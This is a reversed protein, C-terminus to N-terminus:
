ICISVMIVVLYVTVNLSTMKDIWTHHCLCIDSMNSGLVQTALSVMVEIVAAIRLM